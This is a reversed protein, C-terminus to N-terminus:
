MPVSPFASSTGALIVRYNGFTLDRPWLSFTSLIESNNKLSMNVLWYIPLLLFVLYITMVVAKGNVRPLGIGRAGSQNLTADAM